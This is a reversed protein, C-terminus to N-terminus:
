WILTSVILAFRHCILNDRNFSVNRKLRAWSLILFTTHHSVTATSWLRTFHQLCTGTDCLRAYRLRSSQNVPSFLKQAIVSESRQFLPVSHMSISCVLKCGIEIYIQSHWDFVVFAIQELTQPIMPVIRAARRGLSLHAASLSMTAYFPTFSSAHSGTFMREVAYLWKMRKGRRLLHM